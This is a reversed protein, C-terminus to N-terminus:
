LSVRTVFPLWYRRNKSLGLLVSHAKARQIFSTQGKGLDAQMRGANGVEVGEQVGECERESM